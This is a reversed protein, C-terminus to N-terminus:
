IFKSIISKIMMLRKNNIKGKINYKNNNNHLINDSNDIM